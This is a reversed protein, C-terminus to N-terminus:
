LETVSTPSHLAPIAEVKKRDQHVRKADYVTRFFHIKEQCISCKESNFMLGDEAAVRMLNHLNADHELRTQRYGTVYDAIGVTESCRQLIQDVKRQFVDQSM